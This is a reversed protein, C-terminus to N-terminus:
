LRAFYEQIKDVTIVFNNMIRKRDKLKSAIIKVCERASERKGM